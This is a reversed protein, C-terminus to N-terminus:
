MNIGLYEVQLGTGFGNARIRGFYQRLKPECRQIARSASSVWEPVHRDPLHSSAVEDRVKCVVVTM